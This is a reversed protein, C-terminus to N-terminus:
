NKKNERLLGEAYKVLAKSIIIIHETDNKNVAIKENATDGKIDEVHLYLSTLHKFLDFSRKWKEFNVSGELNLKITKHLIDGVERCNAFAGKTDWMKYCEEAKEIYEWADRLFKEGEPIEILFYKGYSLESLIKNVWHSQEVEFPIEVLSNSIKNLNTEKFVGIVFWVSLKISLNNRRHEEIKIIRKYDLPFELNYTTELNQASVNYSYAVPISDSVKINKEQLNLTSCINLIVFESISNDFEKIPSLRLKLPIILRPYGLGENAVIKNPEISVENGVWNGIQLKQNSM